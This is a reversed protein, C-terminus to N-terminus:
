PAPPRPTGHPRPAFRADLLLRRPPRAFFVSYPSSFWSPVRRVLVLSWNLAAWRLAERTSLADVGRSPTAACSRALRGWIPQSKTKADHNRPAPTPPPLPIRQTLRRRREGGAPAVALADPVAPRRPARSPPGCSLGGSDRRDTGAHPCDVQADSLEGCRRPKHERRRCPRMDVSPPTSHFILLVPTCCILSPPALRQTTPCRGSHRCRPPRLMRPPPRIRSIRANADEKSKNEDTRQPEVSPPASLSFFSRRALLSSSRLALLVGDIRVSCGAERTKTTTLLEQRLTTCIPELRGRQHAKQRRHVPSSPSSAGFPIFSLLRRPLIAELRERQHTELRYALLRLVRWLVRALLRVSSFHSFTTPSPFLPHSEESSTSVKKYQVSSASM